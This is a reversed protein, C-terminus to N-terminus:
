WWRIINHDSLFVFFRSTSTRSFSHFSPWSLPLLWPYSSPYSAPDVHPQLVSGPVIKL